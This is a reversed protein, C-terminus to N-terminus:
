SEKFMKHKVSREANSAGEEEDMECVSSAAAAGDRWFWGVPLFRRTQDSIQKVRQFSVQLSSEVQTMEDPLPRFEGTQQDHMHPMFIGLKFESLRRLMEQVEPLGMAEQATRFEPSLGSSSRASVNAITM